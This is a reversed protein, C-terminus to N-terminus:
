LSHPSELDHFATEIKRRADARVTEGVAETVPPVTDATLSIRRPAQRPAQCFGFVHINHAAFARETSAVFERVVDVKPWALDMAVKACANADTDIQFVDKLGFYRLADELDIDAALLFDKLNSSVSANSFRYSRRAKEVRRQTTRIRNM